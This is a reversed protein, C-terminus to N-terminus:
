VQDCSNNASTSRFYEEREKYFFGKTSQKSTNIKNLSDDNMAVSVQERTRKFITQSIYEFLVYM